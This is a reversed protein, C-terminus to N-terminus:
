LLPHCTGRGLRSLGALDGDQFDHIDPQGIPNMLQTPDEVHGLGVLHGLEHLVVALGPNSDPDVREIHAIDDADLLVSGTIFASRGTDTRTVSQSGGLGAVDGTLEVHEAETGWAILVPAWRDGYRTPQYAPRDARWREDTELEVEFQLGTLDSMQMIAATIMLDGGPPAQMPNITVKITRCPDYTIPEGTQPDTALYSFSSSDTPAIRPTGLPRDSEPPKPTPMSPDLYQRSLPDASAWTAGNEKGNRVWTAILATTALLFVIAIARGLRETRKARRANDIRAQNEAFQHIAAMREAATPEHIPAAAIFQDSFAPLGTPPQREWGDSVEDVRGDHM